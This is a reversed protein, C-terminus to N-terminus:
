FAHKLTHSLHSNQDNKIMLEDMFKAFIKSLMVYRLCM